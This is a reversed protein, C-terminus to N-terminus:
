TSIFEPSCNIIYRVNIEVINDDTPLGGPPMTGRTASIQQITQHTRGQKFQKKFVTQLRRWPANGLTTELTFGNEKQSCRSESM